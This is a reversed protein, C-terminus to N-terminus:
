EVDEVELSIFKVTETTGPDIKQDNVYIDVWMVNGIHIWLSKNLSILETEEDAKFTKSFIQKGNVGGDSVSVWCRGNFKLKVKIEEGESSIVYKELTTDGYKSTELKNISLEKVTEPEDIIIEPLNNDNTDNANDSSYNLRSDLLIGGEDENDSNFGIFIYVIFIVLIILIYVLSRLFWKGFKSPSSEVKYFNNDVPIENTEKSPLTEFYEDLINPDLEIAEAYTKIFAKIYFEGPLKDLNEEEIAQIYGSRIKTIDQIDDISLGKSIRLEKLQKGIYEM